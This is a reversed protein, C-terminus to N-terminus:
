RDLKAEGLLSLATKSLDGSGVLIVEGSEMLKSLGLKACLKRVSPAPLGPSALALVESATSPHTCGRDPM